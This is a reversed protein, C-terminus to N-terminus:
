PYATVLRPQDQGAEVIWITRIWVLEGKPTRLQGDVVYKSVYPTELIGRVLGERAVELLAEQLLEPHRENFGLARFFRAKARGVSHTESLLYRTIKSLPFYANEANPLPM